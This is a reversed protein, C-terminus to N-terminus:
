VTAELVLFGDRLEWTKKALLTLTKLKKMPVSDIRYGKTELDKWEKVSIKLLIPM